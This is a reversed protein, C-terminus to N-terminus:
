LMVQKRAFSYELYRDKVAAYRGHPLPIEALSCMRISRYSISRIQEMNVLFSRHTRLFNPCGALQKELEDMSGSSETVTGDTLHFVLTRGLVECYELRDLEIRTLGNKCRLILNNQQAKRCDALVKDLLPFLSQQQVPKLLYYYAGVVYSEVAFEASSTLFIIRCSNDYQRIEKATEIGNLGPMLIDLLLVDYRMGQEIQALLEVPSHFATCDPADAAQAGYDALLASLQELLASDDDCYALRIM